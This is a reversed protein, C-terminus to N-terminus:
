LDGDRLLARYTLEVDAKRVVLIDRLAGPFRTAEPTEAEVPDPMPEGPFM